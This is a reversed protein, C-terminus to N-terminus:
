RGFIRWFFGRVGTQPETAPAITGDSRMTVPRGGEPKESLTVAETQSSVAPAAKVDVPVPVTSPGRSLSITTKRDGITLKIKAQYEDRIAKVKAEMETQLAKIKADTAADGTSIIPQPMAPMTPIGNASASIPRVAQGRPEVGQASAAIIATVVVATSIIYKKM